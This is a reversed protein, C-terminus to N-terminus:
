CELQEQLVKKGPVIRTESICPKKKTVLPKDEFLVSVTNHSGVIGSLTAGEHDFNDFAASTFHQPHFMSPLPVEGMQNTLLLAQWTM